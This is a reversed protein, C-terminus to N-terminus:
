DTCTAIQNGRGCLVSAVPMCRGIHTPIQPIFRVQYYKFRQPFENIGFQRMFIQRVYEPTKTPDFGYVQLWPLCSCHGCSLLRVVQPIDPPVPAEQWSAKTHLAANVAASHPNKPPICGGSPLSLALLPPSHLSQMM